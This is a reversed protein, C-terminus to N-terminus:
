GVERVLVSFDSFEIISLEDISKDSLKGEKKLLKVIENQM